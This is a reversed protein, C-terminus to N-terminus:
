RRLALKRFSGPEHQRGDHFRRARAFAREKSKLSLGAMSVEAVACPNARIGSGAKM